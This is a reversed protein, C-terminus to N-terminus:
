DLAQQYHAHIREDDTILWAFGNAKANAVILRDFPDRTWKEHIAAEAVEAFPVSCVRVAVESKLKLMIDAATLRSRRIEHLYEMELVVMPSVLLEVNGIRRLTSSSLVRADGQAIRIAIHTDLYAVKERYGELGRGV